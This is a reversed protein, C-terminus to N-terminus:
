DAPTTNAAFPDLALSEIKGVITYAVNKPLRHVRRRASKSYEVKFAGAM